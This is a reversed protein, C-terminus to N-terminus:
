HLTHTSMTPKADTSVLLYFEDIIATLKSSLKATLIVIKEALLFPMFNAKSSLSSCLVKLRLDM